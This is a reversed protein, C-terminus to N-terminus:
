DRVMERSVYEDCLRCIEAREAHNFSDLAAMAAPERDAIAMRERRTLGDRVIIKPSIPKDDANRMPTHEKDHDHDTLQRRPM